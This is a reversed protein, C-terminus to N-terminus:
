RAKCQHTKQWEAAFPIEPVDNVIVGVGLAHIAQAKHDTPLCEQMPFIQITLFQRCLNDTDGHTQKQYDAAHLATYGISDLMHVTMALHANHQRELNKISTVLDHTLVAVQYFDNKKLKRMAAKQYDRVLIRADSITQSSMIGRYQPAHEKPFITSMSVLDATIVPIGVKQFRRAMVDIYWSIPLNLSQLSAIKKFIADSKGSTKSAYYPMRSEHSSIADALHEYLGGKAVDFLGSYLHRLEPSKQGHVKCFANQVLIGKFDQRILASSPVLRMTDLVKEAQKLFQQELNSQGSDHANKADHLASVFEAFEGLNRLENRHGAAFLSSGAIVLVLLVFFIRKPLIFNFM